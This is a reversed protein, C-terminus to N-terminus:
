EEAESLVEDLDARLQELVDDKTALAELAAAIRDLAVIIHAGQMSTLGEM